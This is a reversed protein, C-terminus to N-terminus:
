VVYRGKGPIFAIGCLTRCGMSLEGRCLAVLLCRSCRFTKEVFYKMGEKEVFMFPELDLSAWIAIDRNLEYQASCAQFNELNNRLVLKTQVVRKSGSGV